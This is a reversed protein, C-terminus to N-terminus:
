SGATSSAIVLVDGSVLCSASAQAKSPLRFHARAIRIRARRLACAQQVPTLRRSSCPAAPTQRDSRLRFYFLERMRLGSNKASEEAIKPSPWATILSVRFFLTVSADSPIRNHRFTSSDTTRRRKVVIVREPPFGFNITRDFSSSAPSTPLGCEISLTIKGGGSSTAHSYSRVPAVRYRQGPVPM